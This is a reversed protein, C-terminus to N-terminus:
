KNVLSSPSATGFSIPRMGKSDNCLTTSEQRVEYIILCQQSLDILFMNLVMTYNLIKLEDVSNPKNHM